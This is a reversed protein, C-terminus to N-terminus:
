EKRQQRQGCQEQMDVNRVREAKAYETGTGREREREIYIYTHIYTHIFAHVYTRVYTHIYTHVYIM